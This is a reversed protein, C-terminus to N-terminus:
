PECSVFVDHLDPDTAMRPSYSIECLLPFSLVPPASGAESIERAADGCMGTLHEGGVETREKLFEPVLFGFAEDEFRIVVEDFAAQPGM